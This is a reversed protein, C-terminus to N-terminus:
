AKGRRGVEEGGRGEERERKMKEEGKECRRGGCGGQAGGSAGWHETRGDMWGDKESGKEVGEDM